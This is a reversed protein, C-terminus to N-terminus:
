EPILNYKEVYAQAAQETNYEMLWSGILLFDIGEEKSIYRIVKYGFDWIYKV